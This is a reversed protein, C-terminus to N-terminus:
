MYFDSHGQVTCNLEIWNLCYWLFTSYLEFYKYQVIWNLEIFFQITSRLLSYQM